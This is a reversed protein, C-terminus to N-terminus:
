RSPSTNETLRFKTRIGEAEEPLKLRDLGSAVNSAFRQTTPHDRGLKGDVIGLALELYSRAEVYDGERQLLVGFDNLSMATDSHNPGLAKQRLALARELLGRARGLDGEDMASGGLSALSAAVYPHDLGFAEEFIAIARQLYAQGSASEGQTSLLFGLQHLVTAIRPDNAHLAKELIALSREFCSQAATYEALSMQVSGLNALSTAFDPASTGVKKEFFQVAREYYTRAEASNGQDHLLSALNNLGIGEFPSDDGLERENIMLALEFYRRAETYDDLVSQRYSALQNLIQVKSAVVIIRYNSVAAGVPLASEQGVLASAIADLRRARPWVEPKQRIVGVPYVEAMIRISTWGIIERLEAGCYALAVQRILRHVSVCDTVISPHQEDRILERDILAFARLAAVAEDLDNSNRLIPFDEGLAERGESFFYLPIPVPALLSVHLLLRFADSHLKSAENIALAFTKSVTLGNHYQEPAATPDDLVKRPSAAFKSAYSAIACGTRECYAAAQEHALPLGGLMESLGLTADLEKTNTRAILFDAGIEKPWFKIEIRAAIAGFNAANSTIIAHMGPGVPLFKTLEKPGIANDYILLIGEGEVLLRDLVTAISRQEPSDAEVWRLQVGLGVLDARMTPETEARIWWTARYDRSHRGAYAAALVTKGVGRLGHLATIAACGGGSSLAQRIAALDDERGLFHRPINIPINSIARADGPFVVPITPPPTGNGINTGTGPFRVPGMPKVAPKLFADLRARADAENLGHLDCRKLPAMLIPAECSEVFVPLLFNPRTSAAAWQAGHRELASYPQELYGSSVVCLVHEAKDAREDMWAMINGGGSVEWDHLHPVHGIKELEQGIWFAWDRDKSTYSVFIEAM